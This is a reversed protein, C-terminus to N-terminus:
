SNIWKHWAFSHTFCSNRQIMDDNYVFPSWDSSKSFCRFDLQFHWDKPFIASILWSSSFLFYLLTFCLSLDPQTSKGSRTLRSFRDHNVFIDIPWIQWKFELIEESIGQYSINHFLMMFAPFLSHFTNPRQIKIRSRKTMRMIKRMTIRTTIMSLDGEYVSIWLYSEFQFM